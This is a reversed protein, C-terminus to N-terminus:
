KPAVLCDEGDQDSASQTAGFHGFELKAIELLSIGM